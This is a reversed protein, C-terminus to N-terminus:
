WVRPAEGGLCLPVATKEKTAYFDLWMEAPASFPREM